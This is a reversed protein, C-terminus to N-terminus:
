KQGRRRPPNKPAPPEGGFAVNGQADIDRSQFEDVNARMDKGATIDRTRVRKGQTRNEGRMKFFWGFPGRMETDNRGSYAIFGAIAVLALVAFIIIVTRSDM